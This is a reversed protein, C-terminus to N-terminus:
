IGPWDLSDSEGPWDIGTMAGLGPWFLDYSLRAPPTPPSFAATGRPQWWWGYLEGAVPIM